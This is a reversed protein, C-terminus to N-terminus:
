VTGIESDSYYSDAIKTCQSLGKLSRGAPYQQEAGTAADNEALDKHGQHGAAQRLPRVLSLM